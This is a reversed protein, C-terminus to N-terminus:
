NNLFYFIVENGGTTARKRVKKRPVRVARRRLASINERNAPRHHLINRQTRFQLQQSKHKLQSINRWDRLKFGLIKRKVRSPSIFRRFISGRSFSLPLHHPKAQRLFLDYSFFSFLFFLLTRIYIKYVYIIYVYVYINTAWLVAKGCDRLAIHFPFIM